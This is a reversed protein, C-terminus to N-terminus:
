ETGWWSESSIIFMLNNYFENQQSIKCNIKPIWCKLQPKRAVIWDFSPIACTKVLTRPTPLVIIQTAIPIDTQAVRGRQLIIIEIHFTNIQSFRTITNQFVISKTQWNIWLNLQNPRKPSCNISHLADWYSFWRMRHRQVIIETPFFM